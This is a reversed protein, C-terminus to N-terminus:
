VIMIEIANDRGSNRHEKIIEQLIKVHSNKYWFRWNKGIEMKKSQEHTSNTQTHTQTGRHRSVYM